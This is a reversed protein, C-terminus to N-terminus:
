ANKAAAKKRKKKKAEAKKAAAKRAAPTGAVAREKPSGTFASRPPKNFARRVGQARKDGKKRALKGNGKGPKKKSATAQELAFEAQAQYQRVSSYIQPYAQYAVRIAMPVDEWARPADESLWGAIRAHGYLVSPAVVGQLDIVEDFAPMAIGVHESNVTGDFWCGEGGLRQYVAQAADYAAAAAAQMDLFEDFPIHIGEGFAPSPANKKGKTM